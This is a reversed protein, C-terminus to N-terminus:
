FRDIVSEFEQNADVWKRVYPCTPIVRIGNEKAWSLAHRVLTDAVGEGRAEEPVRTHQLALTEEDPRSYAIYAEGHDTAAAFRQGAEDHRIDM